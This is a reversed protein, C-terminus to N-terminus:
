LILWLWLVFVSGKLLTDDQVSKKM